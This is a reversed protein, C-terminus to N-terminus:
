LFADKNSNRKLLTTKKESPLYTLIGGPLQMNLSLLLFVLVLHLIHEFSVIFVTTSSLSYLYRHRREPYLSKINELKM